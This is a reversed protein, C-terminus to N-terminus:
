GRGTSRQHQALGPRAQTAAQGAHQSPTTGTAETTDVSRVVEERNTYDALPLSRLAAMVTEDASAETAVRILEDKTAPFDAALLASRIADASALGTGPM